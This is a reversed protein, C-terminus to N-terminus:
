SKLFRIKLISYKSQSSHHNSNWSQQDNPPQQPPRYNKPKPPPVPKHGPTKPPPAPKGYEPGRCFCFAFFVICEFTIKFVFWIYLAEIVIQAQVFNYSLYYCRSKMFCMQFLFCYLMSSNRFM